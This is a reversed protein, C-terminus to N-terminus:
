ITGRHPGITESSQRLRLLDRRVKEISGEFLQFHNQSKKPDLTQSDDKLYARHLIGDMLELHYSDNFEPSQDLNSVSVQVLPLRWVNMWLDDDLRRLVASTGAENVLTGTVTLETASAVTVPFTGNNSVTGAVNVSEGVKFVDLGSTKQIKSSAAVFSIDSIGEVVFTSDFFPVIRIRNIEPNKIIFRPTGEATEWDVYNRDLWNEGKPDPTRKNTRFRSRKIDIIRSDTTYTHKGALIELHVIAATENDQIIRTRKCFENVAWNEYAILEGQGWLYPIKTDKLNSRSLDIIESHIM